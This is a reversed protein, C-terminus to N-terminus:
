LRGELQCELPGKPPVHWAKASEEDRAAEAKRDKGGDECARNGRREDKEGWRGAGLGGVGSGEGASDLVGGLGHDGAGGDSDDVGEGVEFAACDGVGAALEGDGRKGDGAGIVDFRSLGAEGRGM